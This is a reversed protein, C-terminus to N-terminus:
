PIARARRILLTDTRGRLLSDLNTIPPGQPFRAFRALSDARPAEYRWRNSFEFSIASLGGLVLGGLVMMPLVEGCGSGQSQNCANTLGAGSLVGVALGWILGTRATMNHRRVTATSVDGLRLAVVRRSEVSLLWISDGRVALLEGRVVPGVLPQLQVARGKIDVREEQGSITGSVGLLLVTSIVLTRM